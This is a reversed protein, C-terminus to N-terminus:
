FRFVTIQKCMQKCFCKEQKDKLWLRMNEKRNEASLIQYALSPASILCGFLTLVAPLISLLQHCCSLILLLSVPIAFSLHCVSVCYNKIKKTM